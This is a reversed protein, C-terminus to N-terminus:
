IGNVTEECGSKLSRDIANLIFVPAVFGEYTEKMKAGSLVEYYAKFERYFWDSCFSVDLSKTAREAVLAAGYIHVGETFIATCDYDDYRFLVNINNNNEKAIVSKPFRGFIECVMEVLHQSYFFFGGYENEKNYPARVMGGLVKGMANCERDRKLALVFPDYKLCSGGTVQINNKKLLEVLEVTDEEKVTVPKDIFMPVGSEIYPKAYMLHRDGHRATIVVGDVKGVADDYNDMVPVGFQENLKEAAEREHSYVGIVEVDSFEERDRIFGLFSNAHSNECGLIVIKKM